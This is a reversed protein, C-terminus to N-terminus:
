MRKMILSFPPTYVRLENNLTAMLFQMGAASGRESVKNDTLWVVTSWAPSDRTFCVLDFVDADGIKVVKTDGFAM